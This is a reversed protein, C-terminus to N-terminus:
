FNNTYCNAHSFYQLFKKVQECQCTKKKVKIFKFSTQTLRQFDFNLFLNLPPFQLLALKISLSPSIKMPDLIFDTILSVLSKVCFYRSESAGKKKKTDHNKKGHPSKGRSVNPSPSRSHHNSKGM